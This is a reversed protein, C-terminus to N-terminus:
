LRFFGKQEPKLGTQASIGLKHRSGTVRTANRIKLPM